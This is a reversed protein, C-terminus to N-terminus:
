EAKLDDETMKNIRKARNEYALRIQENRAKQEKDLLRQETRRCRKCVLHKDGEQFVFVECRCCVRVERMAYIIKDTPKNGFRMDSLVM